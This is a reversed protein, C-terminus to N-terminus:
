ACMQHTAGAANKALTMGGVHKCTDYWHEMALVIGLGPSAVRLGHRVTYISEIFVPLSAGHIYFTYLNECRWVFSGMVRARARSEEFLPNCVVRARNVLRSTEYAKTFHLGM